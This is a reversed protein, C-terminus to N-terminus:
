KFLSQMNQIEKKQENIKMCHMKESDKYLAELARKDQKLQKIKDNFRREKEKYDATKLMSVFSTSSSNRHSVNRSM